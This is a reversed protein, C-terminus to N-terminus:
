VLIRLICQRNILARVHGHRLFLLFMRDSLLRSHAQSPDSNMYGDLNSRAAEDMTYGRTGERSDGM